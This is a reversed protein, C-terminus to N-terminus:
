RSRGHAARDSWHRYSGGAARRRILLVIGLVILPVPVIGHILAGISAAIMLLGLVVLIRHPGAGFPGNAFPAGGFPRTRQMGPRRPGRGGFSGDPSWFEQAATPTAYGRQNSSEAPLDAFLTPFEDLYTAAYAQRVREDYEATDIRGATFHKALREAASQRDADAARMRPATM